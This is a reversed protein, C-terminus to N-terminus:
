VGVLQRFASIPRRLLYYFMPVYSGQLLATGRAGIKATPAAADLEGHLRYVLQQTSNPEAQYSHTSVRASIATLPDADLFLRASAGRELLIADAIPLEIRAAVRNTDVIQMLREGTRVPKGILRDRDSYILIGEQDAVIRGKALLESAYHREVKKLDYETQAQGLERRSKEDGFAAQSTRDLRAKALL